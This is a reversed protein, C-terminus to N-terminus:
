TMGQYMSETVFVLIAAYLLYYYWIQLTGAQIDYWIQRKLKGM